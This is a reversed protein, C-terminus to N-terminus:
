GGCRGGGSPSVGAAGGFRAVCHWVRKLDQEAYRGSGAALGLVRPTLVGDVAIEAGLDVYRRGRYGPHRRLEAVELRFGHHWEVPCPLRRATDEIGTGRYSPDLVLATVDADLRVPGHVHAEIHDDLPDLRDALALALLPMREATGFATPERHIDPYCFTTRALHNNVSASMKKKSSGVRPM